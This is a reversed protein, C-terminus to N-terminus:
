GELSSTASDSELIQNAVGLFHSALNIDDFPASQLYVGQGFLWRLFPM